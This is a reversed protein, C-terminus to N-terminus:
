FNMQPAFTLFGKQIFNHYKLVASKRNSIFLIM